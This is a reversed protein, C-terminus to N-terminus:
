LFKSIYKSVNKRKYMRGPEVVDFYSSCLQQIEDKSLQGKETYKKKTYSRFYNGLAICNNPNVHKIRSSPGDECEWYLDERCKPCEGSYWEDQNNPLFGYHYKMLVWEYGCSCTCYTRTEESPFSKCRLSTKHIQPIRKELYEHLGQRKASEKIPFVRIFGKPVKFIELFYRGEIIDKCISFCYKNVLALSAVDKMSLYQAIICVLEPPIRM